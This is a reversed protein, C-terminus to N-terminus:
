AFFSVIGSRRPREITAVESTERGSERPQSAEMAPRWTGSQGLWGQSDHRPLQHQDVTVKFEGMELGSHQLKTELQQQQGVMGQGLDFHETRIHAHVTRDMMFIRVNVPGLDAPELDLSVSHIVPAQGPESFWSPAGAARGTSSPAASKHSSSGDM